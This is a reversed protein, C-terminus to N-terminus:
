LLEKADEEVEELFGLLDELTPAALWIFGIPTEPYWHLEWIENTDIAKQKDNDSQWNPDNNLIYESVTMYVAKHENHSLTLSAKHGPLCKAVLEIADITIQLM